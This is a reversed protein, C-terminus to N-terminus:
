KGLKELATTLQDRYRDWANSLFHVGERGKNYVREFPGRRHFRVTVVKTERRGVKRRHRRVSHQRVHERTGPEIGSEVRSAHPALYEIIFGDAWKRIRGSRKLDGSAVPVDSQTQDFIQQGVGHIESIIQERVERPRRIQYRLKVV